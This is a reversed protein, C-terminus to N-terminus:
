YIKGQRWESPKNQEARHQMFNATSDSECFCNFRNKRWRQSEWQLTLRVEAWFGFGWQCWIGSVFDFPQLRLSASYKIQMSRKLLSLFAAFDSVLPLKIDAARGGRRAEWSIVNLALFKQSPPFNKVAPPRCYSPIASANESSRRLLSTARSSCILTRTPTQTIEQEDARLAARMSVNRGPFNLAGAVKEPPIHYYVIHRIWQQAAYIYM